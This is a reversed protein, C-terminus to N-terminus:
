NLFLFMGTKYFKDPSKNKNLENQSIISSKTVKKENIERTPSKATNCSKKNERESSLITPHKLNSEYEIKKDNKYIESNLIMKILDDKNMNNIDEIKMHDTKNTEEKINTQNELKEKKNLIEEYDANNINNKIKLNKELKEDQFIQNKKSNMYIKEFNELPNISTKDPNIKNNNEIKELNEIKNEVKEILKDSSEKENKNDILNNKYLNSNMIENKIKSFDNINEKTLKINGQSEM